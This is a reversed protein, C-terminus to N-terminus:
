TRPSHSTTTRACLPLHAFRSNLGDPAGSTFACICRIFSLESQNTPHANSPETPAGKSPANTSPSWVKAHAAFLVAFSSAPGDATSHQVNREVAAYPLRLLTGCSATGFAFASSTVAAISAANSRLRPFSSGFHTKERACSQPAASGVLEGRTGHTHSPAARTPSTPSQHRPASASAATSLARAIASMRAPSWPASAPSAAAEESPRLSGNWLSAPWSMPSWSRGFSCVTSEEQTATYTHTGNDTSTGRIM